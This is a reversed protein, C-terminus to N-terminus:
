RIKSKYNAARSIQIKKERQKAYSLQSSDIPERIEESNSINNLQKMRSTYDKSAKSSSM